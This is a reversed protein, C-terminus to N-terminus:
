AGGVMKLNDQLRSDDPNFALAKTALAIAKLRNGLHYHARAALDYAGEQSAYREAMYNKTPPLALSRQAFDITAHFANQALCCCAADILPERSSSDELTARVFWQYATNPEGKAQHCKAIFRMSSAREQPWECPLALHRQLEVIAEDYRSHFYYERGLYHAMRSDFPNEQVALRLLDLYYHRPKHSDARHEILTVECVNIVEPVTPILIEHV